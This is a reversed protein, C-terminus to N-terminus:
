NNSTLVGDNIDDLIKVIVDFWYGSCDENLTLFLDANYRDVIFKMGARSISKNEISEINHELKKIDDDICEFARKLRSFQSISTNLFDIHSKLADRKSKVLEVEGKLKEIAFNKNETVYDDDKASAELADIGSKLQEFTDIVDNVNVTDALVGNFKDSLKWLGADALEEYSLLCSDYWGYASIYVVGNDTTYSFKIGNLCEYCKFSTGDDKFDDEKIHKIGFKKFQAATFKAM